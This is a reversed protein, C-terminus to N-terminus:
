SATLHGLRIIPVSSYGEEKAAAWRCHGAIIQGNEDTLIPNVFGFRRLSAALMRRQRRSHTRANRPDPTLSDPSVYVVTLGSFRSDM